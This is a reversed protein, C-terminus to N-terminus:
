SKKKKGPAAELKLAEIDLPEGISPELRYKIAGVPCKDECLTCGMCKGLDVVAKQTQEDVSIAHFGCAKACDGCGNCADGVEPVYGSPALFPNDNSNFLHWNTTSMCCCSCCNCICNFRDSAPKEFYACHIFGAKHADELVKVAEKPTIKRFYPNQSLLFSVNPEGIWMCLNQESPPVCPNVAAARCMCRGLAISAPSELLIERTLKFPIVKESPVLHMNETQSVLKVADESRIIKSHLISTDKSLSRECVQDVFLQMMEATGKDVKQYDPAKVDRGMAKLLKYGFYYIYKMYLYGALSDSKFDLQFADLLGKNIKAIDVKEVKKPM